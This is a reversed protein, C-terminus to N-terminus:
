TGGPGIGISKYQTGDPGISDMSRRDLEINEGKSKINMSIIDIVM